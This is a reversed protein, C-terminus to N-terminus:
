FLSIFSNSKPILLYKNSVVLSFGSFYFDLTLDLFQVMLAIVEGREFSASINDLLCKKTGEQRKIKDLLSRQEITFSLNVFRLAPEQNSNQKDM